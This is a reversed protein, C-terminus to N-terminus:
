RLQRIEGIAKEDLGKFHLKQQLWRDRDLRAAANLAHGSDYFEMKKDKASYANLYKTAQERTVNDKVAFQLFISKGDTHGLFNAPDDWAYDHFYQEVKDAGMRERWQFLGSDKDKANRVDEEDSYTGAMLVFTGIRKEVAALIAGLHASYSHGVYAIRHPDVYRRTLLVEVGRRLDIIQQRDTESYQVAWRWADEKASEETWGPRVMPADILLSMVGSHALAVAEDLFEERNSLRSGPQMWHGWIIAPFPGSGHPIVLYAPVHDEGTGSYVIDTILIKDRMEVNFERINLQGGTFYSYHAAMEDYDPASSQARGGACVSLLLALVGPFCCLFKRM